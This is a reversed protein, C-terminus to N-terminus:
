AGMCEEQALADSLRERRARETSVHAGSRTRRHLDNAERTRPEPKYVHMSRLACCPALSTSEATTSGGPKTVIVDAADMFTALRRDLVYFPRDTAPKGNKENM